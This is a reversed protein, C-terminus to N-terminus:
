SYVSLRTRMSCICTKMKFCAALSSLHVTCSAKITCLARLVPGSYFCDCIGTYALDSVEKLRFSEALILYRLCSAHRISNMLYDSCHIELCVTNFYHAGCLLEEVNQELIVVKDRYYDLLQDVTAPSLYSPDLTIFLENTTKMDNGSLINKVVSFIAALVIRRAYFVHHDVTLAM